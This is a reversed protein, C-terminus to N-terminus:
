WPGPLVWGRVVLRGLFSDRIADIHILFGDFVEPEAGLFLTV